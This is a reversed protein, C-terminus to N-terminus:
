GRPALDAPPRLPFRAMVTTGEGPSSRLELRGGHLEILGKTLPLGLGTGEFRRSLSSEVQSFPEFIEKFNKEEIGIGTDTIICAIGARGDRELRVVVSGGALTFKVANSLLNLIIQKVMREDARITPVGEMIETSLAIGTAEARPRLIRVCAHIATAVNVDAFRPILMGAEVKSVDLIDNIIELLHASSAQIDRAYDVYAPQGAPGLIENGIMQAFGIVANLPTRLEHSMNALFETKARNALEAAEKARRLENEAALRQLEFGVRAAVLEVLDRKAACDPDPRDDIGFVHGVQQGAGDRVPAGIFCRAGIEAFLRYEPYREALGDPVAHFGAGAILEGCATGALDYAFPPRPEGNEAWGIVESRRGGDITRCLGAWRYGLGEGLALAVASALEQESRGAATLARLAAERRKLATIDTALIIIGGDPTRQDLM